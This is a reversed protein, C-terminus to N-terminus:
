ENLYVFDILVAFSYQHKEFLYNSVKTNILLSDRYYENEVVEIVKSYKTKTIEEKRREEPNFALYNSFAVISSKRILALSTLSLSSLGIVVRNRKM